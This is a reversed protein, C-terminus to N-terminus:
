MVESEDELEESEDVVAAIEIVPSDEDREDDTKRDKMYDLLMGIAKLRDEGVFEVGFKGNKVKKIVTGDPM